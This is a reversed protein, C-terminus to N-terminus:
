NEPNSSNNISSESFEKIFRPWNKKIERSMDSRRSDTSLFRDVFRIVARDYNSILKQENNKCSEIHSYKYFRKQNFIGGDNLGLGGPYYESNGPYGLTVLLSRRIAYALLIGQVDENFISIISKQISNNNDWYSWSSWLSGSPKKSGFNLLIKRGTSRPGFYILCSGDEPHELATLQPSLKQYGFIGNLDEIARFFIDSNQGTSDYFLVQRQSEAKRSSSVGNWSLCIDSIFRAVDKTEIKSLFSKDNYFDTLQESLLVNSTLFVIILLLLTKSFIVKIYYPTNM